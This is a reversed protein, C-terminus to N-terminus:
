ATGGQLRAVIVVGHMWCGEHWSRCMSGRLLDEDYFRM